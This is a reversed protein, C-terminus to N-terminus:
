TKICKQIKAQSNQSPPSYSQYANQKAIWRDLNLRLLFTQAHCQHLHNQLKETLIAILHSEINLPTRAIVRSFPFFFFFFLPILFSNCYIQYSDKSIIQSSHVSVCLLMKLWYKPLTLKLLNTIIDRGEGKEWLFDM